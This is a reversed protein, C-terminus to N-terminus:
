KKVPRPLELLGMEEPNYYAAYPLCRRRHGETADVSYVQLYLRALCRERCEQDAIGLLVPELREVTTRAEVPRGSHAYATVLNLEACFGFYWLNRSSSCRVSVERFFRAALAYLKNKILITGISFLIVASHTNTSGYADEQIGRLIAISQRISDTYHGEEYLRKARLYDLNLSNM